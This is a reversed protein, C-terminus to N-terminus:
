CAGDYTRKVLDAGQPPVKGRKLDYSRVWDVKVVSKNMETTGDGVLRMRVTMPVRPIAASAAVSAVSRGDIFWTIRHGTVEVAYTHSTGNQRYGQLTRDWATSGANVGVRVRDDGPSVRAITLNHAGCDYDDPDAPILELLFTYDRAGHEYQYSREIIEWRGRAAPQDVLTLTSGGVDPDDAGNRVLASHFEVGGGYKVVRGTGDTHEIWRGATIDSGRYPRSDFSEGFEWAFDWLGGGWGYTKAATARSGSKAAPTTPADAAVPALASPAVVLAAAVTAFRAVLGRTIRRVASV